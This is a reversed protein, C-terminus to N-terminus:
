MGLQIEESVGVGNGVGERSLGRGVTPFRNEAESPKLNEKEEPVSDDLKTASSSVTPLPAVVRPTGLITSAFPGFIGSVPDVLNTIKSRLAALVLADSLRYLTTGEHEISLLLQDSDRKTLPLSFTSLGQVDCM